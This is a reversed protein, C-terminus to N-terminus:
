ARGGGGRSGGCSQLGGPVSAITFSGFKIGSYYNLQEVRDEGTRGRKEGASRHPTGIGDAQGAQAAGEMKEDDQRMQLTGGGREEVKQGSLLCWKTLEFYDM